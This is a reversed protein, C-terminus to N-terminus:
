SAPWQRTMRTLRITLLRNPRLKLRVHRRTPFPPCAAMPLGAPHATVQDHQVLWSGGDDFFLPM